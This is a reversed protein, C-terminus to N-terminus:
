IVFEEVKIKRKLQGDEGILVKTVKCDVLAGAALVKLGERTVEPKKLELEIRRYEIRGTMAKAVGYEWNGYKFTKSRIYVYVIAEGIRCLAVDGRKFVPIHDSNCEGPAMNM